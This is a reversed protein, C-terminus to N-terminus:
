DPKTLALCENWGEGVRRGPLLFHRQTVKFQKNKQCAGNLSDNRDRHRHMLPFEGREAIFLPSDWKARIIVTGDSKLWVGM